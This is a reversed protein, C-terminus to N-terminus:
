WECRPDSCPTGDCQKECVTCLVSFIECMIDENCNEGPPLPKSKTSIPRVTLIEERTVPEDNIFKLLSM